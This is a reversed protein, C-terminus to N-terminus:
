VSNISTIKQSNGLGNLCEYIVFAEGETIKSALATDSELCHASTLRNVRHFQTCSDQWGSSTIVVGQTDIIANAIGLVQNLCDMLMQLNDVDFIDTCKFTQPSM